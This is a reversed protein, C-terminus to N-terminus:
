HDTHIVYITKYFHLIVDQTDGKEQYSSKINYNFGNQEFKALFDSLKSKDTEINHHYEIIYENAINLTNSIFLDSIVEIESGEIDMKILDISSFKQIIKSLKEAKVVHESKGGRSQNQSATLSGLNEDIFFSLEGTHSSLAINYLEINQLNNVKINKQLLTFANPNAEIGIITSEPFKNKFFLISMGINSGCDIIIPNSIQSSFLYEKLVFIEVFLHRITNYSYGTVKYNLLKVSKTTYDSSEFITRLQLICLNSFVIIKNSLTGNFDKARYFNKLLSFHNRKKIIEKIRNIM